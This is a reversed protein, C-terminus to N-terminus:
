YVTSRGATRSSGRLSPRTKRHSSLSVPHLLNRYQCVRARRSWRHNFAMLTLSRVRQLVSTLWSCYLCRVCGACKNLLAQSVKEGKQAWGMLRVAIAVGKRTLFGNNDEDAISWIEGLVTPALKAGGFVRVAVDGTLIGIKQTDAQAFIQNVLALEAPTATFHSAM